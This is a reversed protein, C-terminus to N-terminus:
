EMRAIYGAWRLIRSENIPLYAAQYRYRVQPLPHRELTGNSHNESQRREQYLIELGKLSFLLITTKRNREVDEHRQVVQPEDAKM